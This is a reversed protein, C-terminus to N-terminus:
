LGGIYERERALTHELIKDSTIDNITWVSLDAIAGVPNVSVQWYYTNGDGGSVELEGSFATGVSASEKLKSFIEQSTSLTVKALFSLNELREFHGLKATDILEYLADNCQIIQNGVRVLFVANKSEILSTKLLNKAKQGAWFLGFSWMIVSIIILSIVASIWGGYHIFKNNESPFLFAVSLLLFSVILLVVTYNRKLRIRLRDFM